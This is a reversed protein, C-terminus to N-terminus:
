FWKMIDVGLNFEVCSTSCVRAVHMFTSDVDQSPNQGSDEQEFAEMLDVVPFRFRMVFYFGKPFDITSDFFISGTLKSLDPPITERLDRDGDLSAGLNQNGLGADYQRRSSLLIDFEYGLTFGRRVADWQTPFSVKIGIPIELYREEIIVGLLPFKFRKTMSYALGVEPGLKVDGGLPFGYGWTVGLRTNPSADCRGVSEGHSKHEEFASELIWAYPLGFGVEVGAQM